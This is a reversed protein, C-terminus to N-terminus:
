PPVPHGGADAIRPLSGTQNAPGGEFSSCSGTVKCACEPQKHKCFVVVLTVAQVREVVVAAGGGGLVCM